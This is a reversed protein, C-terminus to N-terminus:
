MLIVNYEQFVEKVIAIYFKGLQYKKNRLLAVNNIICKMLIQVTQNPLDIKMKLYADSKLMCERLSDLASDM